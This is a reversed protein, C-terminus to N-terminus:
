NTMKIQSLKALPLANVGDSTRTVTVTITIGAEQYRAEPTEEGEQTITEFQGQTPNLIFKDKTLKTVQLTYSTKNEVDLTINESTGVDQTLMVTIPEAPTFPYPSGVLPVGNEYKLNVGNGDATLLLTKGAETSAININANYTQAPTPPTPTGTLVVKTTFHDMGVNDSNSITGIIPILDSYGKNKYEEMYKQSLQNAEMQEKALNNTKFSNAFFAATPFIIIGLIALSLIVEILTMGSQSGQNREM